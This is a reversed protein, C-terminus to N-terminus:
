VFFMCLHAMAVDPIKLALSREDDQRVRELECAYTNLTNRKDTFEVTTKLHFADSHVNVIVNERVRPPLQEQVLWYFEDLIVNNNTKL